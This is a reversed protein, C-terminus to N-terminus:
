EYTINLMWADERMYRVETKIEPECMPLDEPEHTERPRAKGNKPLPEERGRRWERCRSQKPNEGFEKKPPMPRVTHTGLQQIIDTKEGRYM